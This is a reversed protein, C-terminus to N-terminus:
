EYGREIMVEDPPYGRVWWRDGNENELLKWGAEVLASADMKPQAIMQGTAPDFPIFPTIVNTAGSLLRRPELSEILGQMTREWLAHSYRVRGGLSVATTTGIVSLDTKAD